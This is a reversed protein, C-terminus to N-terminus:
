RFPDKLREDEMNKFKKHLERYKEKGDNNLVFRGDEDKDYYKGIVNMYNASWYGRDSIPHFTNPGYGLEFILKILQQRQTVKKEKIYKLVRYQKYARPYSRHEQTSDLNFIGKIKKRDKPETVKDLDLTKIYNLFEDKSKYSDLILRLVKYSIKSGSEIADEFASLDENFAAMEIKIKDLHTQEFIDWGLGSTFIDGTGRRYAWDTIMKRFLPYSIKLGADIGRFFREVDGEKAANKLEEQKWRKELAPSLEKPKLIDDLSERVLM